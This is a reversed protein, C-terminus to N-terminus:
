RELQVPEESHINRNVLAEQRPVLLQTCHAIVARQSEACYLTNENIGSLVKRDGTAVELTTDGTSLGFVAFYCTGSSSVLCQIGLTGTRFNPTMVASVLNANSRSREHCGAVTVLSLLLLAARVTRKM